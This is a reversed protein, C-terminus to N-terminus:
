DQKRKPLAAASPSWTVCWRECVHWSVYAVAFSCPVSAVFIELHLYHKSSLITPFVGSALLIEQVHSHYLFVGFTYKGCRNMKELFSNFFMNYRSSPLQELGGRRAPPRIFFALYLTSYVVAVSWLSEYVRPLHDLSGAGEPQLQYLAAPVLMFVGLLTLFTSMSLGIDFRASHMLAGLLFDRLNLLGGGDATGPLEASAVTPDRSSLLIVTAAAVLGGLFQPNKAAGVAALLALVCYCFMERWMSEMGLPRRLFESVVEQNGGGGAFPPLALDEPTSFEPWRQPSVLRRLIRMFYAVVDPHQVYAHYPLTSQLPARVFAFLLAHVVYPVVVRQARKAIWRPLILISTLDGGGRGRMKLLARVVSKSCLFGSIGFFGSVCIYGLSCFGCGFPGIFGAGSLLCAHSYVVVLSLLVRVIGFSSEGYPRECLHALTVGAEAHHDRPRHRLKKDSTAAERMGGEGKGNKGDEDKRGGGEAEPERKGCCSLPTGSDSACTSTTCRCVAKFAILSLRLLAAGGLLTMFVKFPSINQSNGKASSLVVTLRGVIAGGTGRKGGHFAVLSDPGHVLRAFITIPQGLISDGIPFLGEIFGASSECGTDDRPHFYQYESLSLWPGNKSVSLEVSVGGQTIIRSVECGGHLGSISLRFAVSWTRGAVETTAPLVQFNHPREFHLWLTHDATTTSTDTQLEVTSAFAPDFSSLSQLLTLLLLPLLRADRANVCGPRRSRSTM